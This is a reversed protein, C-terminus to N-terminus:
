LAVFVWNETRAICFHTSDSSNPGQWCTRDLYFSQDVNYLIFGHFMLIHGQGQVFLGLNHACLERSTLHVFKNCLEEMCFFLLPHSFLMFHTSSHRLDQVCFGSNHDFSVKALM